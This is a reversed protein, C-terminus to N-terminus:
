SFILIGIESETVAESYRSEKIQSMPLKIAIIMNNFQNDKKFSVHKWLFLYKSICQSKHCHYKHCCLYWGKTLSHLMWFIEKKVRKKM